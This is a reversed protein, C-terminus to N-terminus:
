KLRRFWNWILMNFKQNPIKGDYNVTGTLDGAFTLTWLGAFLLSSIFKVM